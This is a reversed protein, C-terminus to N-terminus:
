DPDAAPPSPEGGESFVNYELNELLPALRRLSDPDRRLYSQLLEDPQSEYTSLVAAAEEKEAKHQIGVNLGTSYSVPLSLLVAVSLAGLMAAAPRSGKEAALKVLMAYVGIVLLVSFSAYRPTLSNEVGLGARGLTISALILFAYAVLAIWFSNGSLGGSKYVLLLAIGSLGILALGVIFALSQQPEWFMSGGVLTAFHEAMVAPSALVPLSSSNANGTQAPEIFYVAWTAVGVLIWAGALLKKTSREMPGILIQLFGAPWVFLGPLASLSAVIGSALAAPFALMGFKGRGSFHLLCLTLVGFTQVFVFAIQFGLLMNLSQRLSFVLFAIPVFLFLTAKVNQKFILLLLFLTILLCVQTLYMEALNNWETATGLALMAIRPFFIRHENHEAFLDPLSLTGQQMQHFFAVMRWQDGYVVSVGFAHVYLFGLVAPLVILIFPLLRIAGTLLRNGKPSM